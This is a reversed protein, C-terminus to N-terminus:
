GRVENGTLSKRLAAMVSALDVLVDATVSRAAPLLGRDTFAEPLTVSGLPGGDCIYVRGISKYRREFLISV